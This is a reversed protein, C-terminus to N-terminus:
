FLLTLVGRMSFQVTGGDKNRRSDEKCPRAVLPIKKISLKKGKAPVRKIYYFFYIFLYFLYIFLYIFLSSIEFILHFFPSLCICSSWFAKGLTDLIVVQVVFKFYFSMVLHTDTTVCSVSERKRQGVTVEVDGVSRTCAM